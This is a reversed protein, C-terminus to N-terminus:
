PGPAYKEREKRPALHLTGWWGDPGQHVAGRSPRTASGEATTGTCGADSPGPVPSMAGPGAPLLVGPGTGETPTRTNLREPPPPPRVGEGRQAGGVGELLVRSASKKLIACIICSIVPHQTTRAAASKRRWRLDGQYNNLLFALVAASSSFKVAAAELIVGAEEFVWGYLM